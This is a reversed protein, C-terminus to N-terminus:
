FKIFDFNEKTVELFVMNIEGNKQVKVGEIKDLKEELFRVM